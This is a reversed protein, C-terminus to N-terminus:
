PRTAVFNDFRIDTGPDAFTSAILGIDGTTLDTDKFDALVQGNVELTLSDAICSARIHNTASGLRIVKDNFNMDESGILSQTGNIFKSIGYFGDSSISFIYFNGSDKYRCILGFENNDPGGIKTADADIIVDSYNLGPTSWFYWDPKNIQIRYSGDRYGTIGDADEVDDWGSSPDSFDDEFLVRAPASSSSSSPENTQVASMVTQCSIASLALILLFILFRRDFKM